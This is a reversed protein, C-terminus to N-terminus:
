HLFLSLIPNTISSLSSFTIFYIIIYFYLSLRPLIFIFYSSFLSFPSLAIFISLSISSLLLCPRDLTSKLDTFLSNDVLHPLINGSPLSSSQAESKSRVTFLEETFRQHSTPSLSLISPSYFPSSLVRLCLHPLPPPPSIHVFSSCLTFRFWNENLFVTEKTAYM